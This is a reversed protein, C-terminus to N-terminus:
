GCRQSEGTNLERVCRDPCCGGVRCRIRKRLNEPCDELAEPTQRESSIEGVGLPEIRFLPHPHASKGEHQADDRDSEPPAPRLDRPQVTAATIATAALMKWGTSVASFLSGRIPWEHHDRDSM